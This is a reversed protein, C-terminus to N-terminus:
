AIVLTERLKMYEKLDPIMQKVKSSVKKYECDACKCYRTSHKVVKIQGGVPKQQRLAERPKRITKNTQPKTLDGSDGIYNGAEDKEVMVGKHKVGIKKGSADMWTYAKAEWYIAQPIADKQEPKWMGMKDGMTLTPTGKDANIIHVSDTDSYIFNDGCANIAEMLSVNAHATIFASFGFWCSDALETAVKEEFYAYASDKGVYFKVEWKRWFADFSELKSPSWEEDREGMVTEFTFYSGLKPNDKNKLTEMEVLKKIEDDAEIFRKSAKMGYRGYLSNMFGIKYILQDAYRGEKQAKLRDAFFGEMYDKFPAIMETAYYIWKDEDTGCDTITWGNELAYNVLPSAFYGSVSKEHVYTLAGRGHRVPFWVKKHKSPNKPPTMTFHGWYGLGRKRLENINGVRAKKRRVKNMDPFTHNTMEAPFQANRDFSMVNHVTKGAHNPNLYVMGGYYAKEASANANYDCSVSYVKETLKEMKMQAVSCQIDVRKGVGHVKANRLWAQEKSVWLESRKFHHSGVMFDKGTTILWGTIGKWKMNPYHKAINVQGGETKKDVTIPFVIEDAEDIEVSVYDKAQRDYVSIEGKFDKLKVEDKIEVVQAEGHHKSQTKVDKDWVWSEVWHKNCWTRYAISAATIPLALKTIIKNGNEDVKANVENYVKNTNEVAAKLIKVDLVCYDEWLKAKDKHNKKIDTYTKCCPCNFVTGQKMEIPTIGKPMGLSDGLASISTPMLHSSDRLKMHKTKQENNQAPIVIKGQLIRGKRQVKEMNKIQLASFCILWDFGWGNHAYARLDHSHGYRHTLGELWKVFQKIDTFTRWEEKEGQVVLVAKCFLFDAKTASLGNTEADWYVYATPQKQVTPLTRKMTHTKKDESM